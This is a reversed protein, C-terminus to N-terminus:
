GYVDKTTINLTTFRRPGFSEVLMKKWAEEEKIPDDGASSTMWMRMPAPIDKRYKLQAISNSGLLRRGMVRIMSLHAKSRKVKSLNASRSPAAIPKLKGTGSYFWGGLLAGLHSSPEIFFTEPSIDLHQIDSYQLWGALNYARSLIWAVHKPDIPGKNLLDIARIYDRDRAMITYSRDGNAVTHINRPLFSSMKAKIDDNPFKFAKSVELAQKALDDYQREAAYIIHRECIYLEGFETKLAALYPYSVVGEKTKIQLTDPYGGGEFAKKALAFSTNIHVIVEKAKPDKNLDPHWKKALAKHDRGLDKESTFLQSPKAKLIQAATLSLVDTM